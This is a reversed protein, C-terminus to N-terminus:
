NLKKMPKPAQVHLLVIEIGELFHHISQASMLEGFENASQEDKATYIRVGNELVEKLTISTEM